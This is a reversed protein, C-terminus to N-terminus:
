CWGLKDRGRPSNTSSSHLAPRCLRCSSGWQARIPRHGPGDGVNRPSRKGSCGLNLVANTDIQVDVANVVGDGNLDNSGALGGLSQKIMLQVDLVNVVGDKNIDCPNTSGQAGGQTVGVSVGAITVTASRSASANAAV